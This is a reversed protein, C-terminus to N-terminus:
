YQVHFGRAKLAIRYLSTDVTIYLTHQEKDIGFEVNSPLGVPPNEPDEASQGEPGTPIFAVEDGAPNLVMVGPRGADRITLYINGKADVCMGDCGKKEKFDILVRPDRAQGLNDITFAHIKMAGQKPPPQTPDIKDTGNDHDAVYLTRGDPSLAIGNPKSVARTVEVIRGTRNNIQYVARHELERTEEGLYRPDTFYIRGRRDVCLDNPANFRKGAFRDAVVTREGTEVNWRTVARGGEDAGECALLQGRRDFILGNSKHSNEAFVTTKETAPDFRLIMGHDSGLRIDSFYISGDPAVAAGETLGGELEATRTFLRELKADSSVISSEAPFPIQVVKETADDIPKEDALGLAVFLMCFGVTLAARM